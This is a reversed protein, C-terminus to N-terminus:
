VRGLMYFLLAIIAATVGASEVTTTIAHHAFVACLLDYVTLTKIKVTVSELQPSM